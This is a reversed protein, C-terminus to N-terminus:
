FHMFDCDNLVCAYIVYWKLSCAIYKVTHKTLIDWFESMQMHLIEFYNVINYLSVSKHQNFLLCELTESDTKM